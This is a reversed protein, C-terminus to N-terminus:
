SQPRSKPCLRTAFSAEYTHSKDLSKALERSSRVPPDEEEDEDEDDDNQESADEDDEDDEDGEEAESATQDQEEDVEIEETANRKGSKTAGVRKGKVVEVKRDSGPKQGKKSLGANSSATEKKTKGDGKKLSGTEVQNGAGTITEKRKRKREAAKVIPSATKYKVVPVTM